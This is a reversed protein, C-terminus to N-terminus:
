FLKIDAFYKLRSRWVFVEVFLVIRDEFSVTDKCFFIMKCIWKINQWFRRMLRYGEVRPINLEIGDVLKLAALFFVGISVNHSALV